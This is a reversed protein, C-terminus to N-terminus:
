WFRYAVGVTLDLYSADLGTVGTNLTAHSVSAVLSVHHRAGYDALDFGVTLGYALAPARNDRFSYTEDFMVLALMGVWPSLWVGDTPEYEVGLGLELAVYRFPYNQLTYDGDFCENYYYLFRPSTISGRAVLALSRSIRVGFDGSLAAHLQPPASPNGFRKATVFADNWDELGMGISVDGIM